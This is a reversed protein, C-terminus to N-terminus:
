MRSRTMFYYVVWHIISYSYTNYKHLLDPVVIIRMGNEDWEWGMRDWDWGMRMGNEYWEWGMRMGNENWEWEMRM